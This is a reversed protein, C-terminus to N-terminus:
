YIFPILRKTTEMYKRYDPFRQALLQEEYTMKVVFDLALVVAALLRAVVFVDAVWGAAILLGGTYMPHRIVRYPGKTVLTARAGPEPQVRLNNFGLIGIAWLLLLLGAAVLIGGPLKSPVIPGTLV